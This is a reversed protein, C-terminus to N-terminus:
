DDNAGVFLMRDIRAEAYVTPRLRLWETRNQDFAEWSPDFPDLPPTPDGELIVGCGLDTDVVFAERKLIRRLDIWGKWVDGCWVGPCMARGGSRETPPNCDHVVIAGGDSLYRISNLVDRVVQERHHLGDVFVVDFRDPSKEADLQAFYADSPLHITAASSPDPDVGVKTEIEVSSFADGRQVGIELYTRAGIRAAIRLWM